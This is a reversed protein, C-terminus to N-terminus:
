DKTKDPAGYREDMWRRRAEVVERWDMARGGWSEAAGEARDRDAYAVIGSGMPTVVRHPDAMLFAAQDAAIWEHSEWDHVYREVITRGETADREDDLMCGIDDYEIYSRRGNEDILAAAASREETVIMGCEGCEDFGLRLRPPGSLTEHECASLTCMAAVSAAGVIINRLKM